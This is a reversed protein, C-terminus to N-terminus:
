VTEHVSRSQKAVSHLLCIELELQSTVMDPGEIGPNTSCAVAM